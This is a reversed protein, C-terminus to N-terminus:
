QLRKGNSKKQPGAVVNAKVRGDEIEIGKGKGVKTVFYQTDTDAAMMRSFEAFTEEDLKEVGDVCVINFKGNLSKAIALSVQVQEAGSLMDFSRGDILVEDETIRMGNVPLHIREMLKVPIDSTLATVYGDLTQAETRLTSYDSRLEVLRTAAEAHGKVTEYESIQKELGKVDIPALIALEANTSELEITKTKLQRTLNAIETEIRSADANLTAIRNNTGEASRVSAYLKHLGREDYSSMDFDSPILRAQEQGAAKKKEMDRNITTRKDYFYKRLKEVLVLAHGALYQESVDDPWEQIGLWKLMEEKTVELKFSELLYGIQKKKDLLFFEAPNFSFGGILSNLYEQPRQIQEGEASAVVLKTGGNSRISRQVFLEDLEILIEASDEGQRVKASQDGALFAAEIARLLSTKGQRNKGTVVNVAGTKIDVERLGMFNRIQLRIM